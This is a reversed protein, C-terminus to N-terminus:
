AADLDAGNRTRAAIWRQLEGAPVRISTGILLHPLTGERVMEYVTTKSCDVIAAVKSVRLLPEVVPDM